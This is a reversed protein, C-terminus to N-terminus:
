GTVPWLYVLGVPELRFARVQYNARIRAPETEIESDLEVLRQDRRRRDQRLQEREADSGLPLVLQPDDAEKNRELIRRRQAELLTRLSAAQEEGRQALEVEVKARRADARQRLEPELDRADSQAWKRAREVAHPLPLRPNRLAEELQALTTGEGREAFPRLPAAGRTAEVWLATVPIIEEHLRAAGPGYLALRGLLVVRPQAGPGVVVTVRQLHSQFGQSLFRSLLRRVLRHELHLQVVKPADTQDPLIAPEFAIDRVPVKARWEAPRERRARPRERLDDFVDSWGPDRFAPDAPDLKFLTAHGATGARADELSTGARQLATGIVAQLDASAVGVRQRSAELTERLDDVERALRQRRRDEADDLENRATRAREDEDETALAAAQERPRMIGENELRAGIREGIVQGASGLQRRIRETKEVLAKLVVDEERQEFVFYRCRVKPSPQLKRDIRGNRQELRSPNWPLDIHILDHCHAQLNIGERAADTCILIRLKEEAPNANFARKLAERRDSTTAGTFAAIRDDPDLDSLAETLRRQLWLRTTEWETFLILRRNNWTGGPALNDRIWKNLWHIRADPRNRHEEAIALMDGVLAREAELDAATAGTTGAQTAAETNADDDLRLLEAAADEDTPEDVDAPPPGAVFTEAAAPTAPLREALSKQHVKLTSTFAAISSLLRQQLGIWVLRARIAQSPPLKALRVERLKRYAELKQPLVLEPADPRLGTLPIPEVIREPFAEGLQRLDVKLRRVMVPELDAPKVEEGRLFRQPDLMEMLAAFSNSHGNHPTATLFLRHEFCGALARIAKTVQSDVAYRQSSSPAAHHAEDLILLARPCFAGLRDRLGAAYTEDRILSHSILFRSGVAWPNASFGRSRRVAALYERDVVTLALGFKSELEDKWQPVMGAPAAVLVFDLRRRLLMERLILGAEVTKGLGVDDAILLNVRALLLAKRLPLLQYPDLRIGARFPAQFLERDAATATHWQLTRLYAAFVTPDDAGDRALSAWTDEDLVRAGLEAEPAWAVQLPEGQADDDICALRLTDLGGDLQDTGEVLWRRGRVEVFDGTSPIHNM